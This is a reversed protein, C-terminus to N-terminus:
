SCYNEHIRVVECSYCHVEIAQASGMEAAVHFPTNCLHKEPVRVLQIGIM